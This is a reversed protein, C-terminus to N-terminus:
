RHQGRNLRRYDHHTLIPLVRLIADAALQVLLDISARFAFDLVDRMLQIHQVVLHSIDRFEQAAMNFEGATTSRRLRFSRFRM